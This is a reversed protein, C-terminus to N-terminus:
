IILFKDDAFFGVVEQLKKVIKRKTSASTRTTNRNFTEDLIKIDDKISSFSEKVKPRLIKSMVFIELMIKKFMFLSLDDFNFASQSSYINYGIYIQIHLTFLIVDMAKLNQLFYTYIVKSMGIQM